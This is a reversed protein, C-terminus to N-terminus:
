SQSKSCTRLAETETNCYPFSLVVCEVLENSCAVSNICSFYKSYHRSRQNERGQSIKGKLECAKARSSGSPFAKTKEKSPTSPHVPITLSDESKIPLMETKKMKM